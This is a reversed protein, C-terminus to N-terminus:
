WVVVVLGLCQCQEVAEVPPPPRAFFRFWRVRLPGCLAMGRGWLRGFAGASLRTSRIKKDPQNTINNSQNSNEDQGRMGAKRQGYRQGHKQGDRQEDRQEDRKDMERDMARDMASTACHRGVVVVYGQHADLPRNADRGEFAFQDFKVLDTGCPGRSRWEKDITQLHGFILVAPIRRRATRDTKKKEM